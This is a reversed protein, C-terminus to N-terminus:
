YHVKRMLRANIIEDRANQDFYPLEHHHATAIKVFDQILSIHVGSKTCEMVINSVLDFLGVLLHSDNIPYKILANKLSVSVEKHSEVFAEIAAAWSHDNSPNRPLESLEQITPLKSELPPAELLQVYHRTLMTRHDHTLGSPISKGALMKVLRPYINIKGYRYYPSKVTYTKSMCKFKYYVNVRVNHYGSKSRAFPGREGKFEFSSFEAFHLFFHVKTYLAKDIDTVASYDFTRYFKHEANIEYFKEKTLEMKNPVGFIRPRTQLSLPIARVRLSYVNVRPHPPSKRPSSMRMGM